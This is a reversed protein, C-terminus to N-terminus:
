MLTAPDKVAVQEKVHVETARPEVTTRETTIKTTTTIPTTLIQPPRLLIKLADQSKRDFIQYAEDGKELPLDHTILFSPDVDGKRMMKLLDHWYKQVFVQSGRLTVAKTMLIGIPFHNTYGVYDGIVSVIGNKKVVKIAEDLCEGVDTELGLTSEIAHVLGKSYRFGVCEICVDPGGPILKALTEVPDCEKYNIVESGVKNRAIALRDPLSDIGIVRKAGRIWAWKQAMLGIPGCGWVVVTKGKTVEGLECAHWATCLVDSLFVAKEDPIDDPLKMLNVDAYPVRAYQAQLGPYSGLLSSYGFVGACRHGGFMKWMEESNNTMNCLSYSGEKCYECQGEGIMASIVVRDGRKFNKVDKGVEEVVGVGEHGLIEGMKMPSGPLSNHMLHLDSGCITTLTIRVIVDHPETILPRPVEQVKIMNKGSYILALMRETESQFPQQVCSTPPPLNADAM